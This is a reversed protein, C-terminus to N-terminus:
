AQMGNYYSTNQAVKTTLTPDTVEVGQGPAPTPAADRAALVPDAKTAFYECATMCGIKMQAKDDSRLDVQPIGKGDDQNAAMLYSYKGAVPTVSSLAGTAPGVIEKAAPEESEPTEPTDAKPATSAPEDSPKAAAEATNKKFTSIQDEILGKVFPNDRKIYVKDEALLETDAKQHLLPPLSYIQESPVGLKKGIMEDIEEQPRRKSTQIPTSSEQLTTEVIQYYRPPDTLQLDQADEQSIGLKKQVIELMATEYELEAEQQLLIDEAAAKKKKEQEAEEASPEAPTEEATEAPTEPETPAEAEPEVPAPADVPSTDKVFLVGTAKIYDQIYRNIYPNPQGRDQLAGEEKLQQYAEAMQTSSIGTVKEAEDEEFGLKKGILAIAQDHSIDRLVPIKGAQMAEEAFKAFKQPDATRMAEASAESIGAVEGVGMCMEERFRKAADFSEATAGTFQEDDLFIGTAHDYDGNAARIARIAKYAEVVEFKGEKRLTEIGARDSRTEGDLAKVRANPDNNYYPDQNCHEGEHEGILQAWDANTGPLKVLHDSKFSKGLEYFNPGIEDAKLESGKAENIICVAGYNATNSKKAFPGDSLSDRVLQVLENQSFNESIGPHSEDLQDAMQKAIAAEDGKDSDRNLRWLDIKDPDIYVIPKGSRMEAGVKYDDQLLRILKDMVAM